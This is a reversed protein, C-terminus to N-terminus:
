QVLASGSAPAAFRIQLQNDTLHHIAATVEVGGPSRVSVAAPRRGLNHNVTWVPAAGSQVHEYNTATDGSRGPPGIRVAIADAGSSPGAWRIIIAPALQRWRLVLGSM